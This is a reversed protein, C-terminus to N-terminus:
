KISFSYSLVGKPLSYINAKLIGQKDKIVITMKDQTIVPGNIIEVDGLSIKYSLVGKEINFVNISNKGSIVASYLASM